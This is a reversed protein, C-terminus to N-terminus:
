GNKIQAIRERAYTAYKSDPFQKALRNLIAIASRRDKKHQLYLDAIRNMLVCREELSVNKPLDLIGLMCGIANDYDELNRYLTALRKRPAPNKPSKKIAKRYLEIAQEYKQEKEYREAQQYTENSTEGGSGGMFFDAIGGSVRQSYWWALIMGVIIGGYVAIAVLTNEFTPGVFLLCVIAVAMLMGILM